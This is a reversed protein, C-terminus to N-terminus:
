AAGAAARIRIWDLGRALERRYQHVSLKGGYQEAVLRAKREQTGVEAFQTRLILARIPSQRRVEALARDIWRLDDPTGADVVTIARPPDADNRCPVPDCAWEPVVRMGPVGAGAAMMRRRALSGRTAVTVVRAAEVAAELPHQTHAWAEHRM